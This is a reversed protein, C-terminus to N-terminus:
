PKGEGVFELEYGHGGFIAVLERERESDTLNENDNVEMADGALRTNGWFPEDAWSRERLETLFGQLDFKASTRCPTAHLMLADRPVGCQESVFGLCCMCGKNDLLVGGGGRLWKARDVTFKTPRNM